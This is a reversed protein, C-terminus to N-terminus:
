HESHGCELLVRQEMSTLHEAFERSEGGEGLARLVLDDGANSVLFIHSRLAHLSGRARASVTGDQSGHEQGPDSVGGYGSNSFM